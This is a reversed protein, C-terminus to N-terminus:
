SKLRLIRLVSWGWMILGSISLVDYDKWGSFLKFGFVVNIGLLFYYILVAVMPMILLIIYHILPIKGQLPNVFRTDKEYKRNQNLAIITITMVPVVVVLELWDLPISVVALYLVLAVGIIIAEIRSITFESLRCSSSVAIGIVLVFYVFVAYWIYNELPTIRNESVWWWVSWLSWILGALLSYNIIIKIRPATMAKGLVLWGLLINIFAHRVLGTFSISISSKDYMTNVIIGEVILGYVVGVLIFASLSKVRYYNIIVLIIYAAVSYALWTLTYDRLAGLTFRCKGWFM